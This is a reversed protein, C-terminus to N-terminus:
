ERLLKTNASIVNIPEASFDSDHTLLYYGKMQCLSSLVIDNYDLKGDQFQTFVEEFNLIGDELFEVECDDIINLIADSAESAASQYEDSRRFDKYVMEDRRSDYIIRVYRNVFESIISNEIIIRNGLSILKSYIGSYARTLPNSSHAYPGYLYIWINTDFVITSKTIQGVDAIPVKKTMM